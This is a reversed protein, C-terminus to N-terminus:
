QSMVHGRTQSWFGSERENCLASLKGFTECGAHCFSEDQTAFQNLDCRDRLVEKLREM